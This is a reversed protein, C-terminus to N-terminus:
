SHVLYIFDEFNKFKMNSTETVEYKLLQDCSSSISTFIKIQTKFLSLFLGAYQLPYFSSTFKRYRFFGYAIGPKLQPPTEYPVRQIM